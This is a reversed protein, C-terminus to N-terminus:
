VSMNHGVFMARKSRDRIGCRVDDSRDLRLRSESPDSNWDRMHRQVYEMLDMSTLLVVGNFSRRILHQHTLTSVIFKISKNMRKNNYKKEM